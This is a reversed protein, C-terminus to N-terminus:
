SPVVLLDKEYKHIEELAREIIHRADRRISWLDDPRVTLSRHAEELMFLYEENSGFEERRPWNGSRHVILHMDAPEIFDLKDWDIQFWQKPFEVFLDDQAEKLSKILPFIAKPLGSKPRLSKLALRGVRAEKDCKASAERFTKLAQYIFLSDLKDESPKGDVFKGLDIDPYKCEFLNQYSEIWSKVQHINDLQQQRKADGLKLWRIFIQTFLTALVGLGFSLLAMLIENM